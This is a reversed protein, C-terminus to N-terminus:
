RLGRGSGAGFGQVLAEVAARAGALDVLDGCLRVDGTVHRTSMRAHHVRDTERDIVGDLDVLVEVLGHVDEADEADVRNGSASMPGGSSHVADRLLVSLARS